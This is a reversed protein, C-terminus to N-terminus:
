DLLMGAAVDEAVEKSTLQELIALGFKFAYAPGRGTILNGDVVVGHPQMHAEPLYEEFGPYCTMQYKRDMKIKSLVLAPAACIAAVYGGRDFHNQIWQVLAVCDGLNKAGPMGGPCILFEADEGKVEGLLFDAVVPIGHAGTVEKRNSISVTKVEITGRRLVDVTALAEVEEFGDALFLFSKKM